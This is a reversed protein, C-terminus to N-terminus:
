IGWGEWGRNFMREIQELIIQALEGNEDGGLVLDSSASAQQKLPMGCLYIKVWLFISVCGIHCHSINLNDIDNIANNLFRSTDSAIETHSMSSMKDLSVSLASSFQFDEHPEPVSYLRNSPSSNNPVISCPHHYKRTSIAIPPSVQTSQSRQSSIRTGSLRTGAAITAAWVVLAAVFLGLENGIGLIFPEQESLSLQLITVSTHLAEVTSQQNSKTHCPWLQETWVRLTNELTFFEPHSNVKTGLVWSEGFVALLARIPALQSLRSTLIQYRIMSSDELLDELSADMLTISGNSNYHITILVASQFTDYREAILSGSAELVTKPMSLNTQFAVAWEQVSMADWLSKHAPLLPDKNLYRFITESRRAHLTNQQCELICCSFILHQWAYLRTWHTWCGQVNDDSPSNFTVLGQITSRDYARVGALKFFDTPYCSFCDLCIAGQQVHDRISSVSDKHM